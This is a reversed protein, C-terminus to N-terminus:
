AALERMQSFVSMVLEVQEDHPLQHEADIVTDGAGDVFAHDMVHRRVIVELSEPSDSEAHDVRDLLNSLLWFAPTFDVKPRDCDEGARRRCERDFLQRAAHQLVHSSPM